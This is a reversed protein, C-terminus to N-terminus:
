GSCMHAFGRRGIQSSELAQDLGQLIVPGLLAADDHLRQIHLHARASEVRRSEDTCDTRLRPIGSVHLGTAPGRVATVTFIRVAQLVVELELYQELRRRIVELFKIEARELREAEVRQHVVNTEDFVVPFRRGETGPPEAPFDPQVAHLDGLEGIELLNASELAMRHRALDSVADLAQRHVQLADVAQEVQDPAAPGVADDGVAVDIMLVLDLLRGVVELEGVGVRQEAPEVGALSLALLQDLVAQRQGGVLLDHLRRVREVQEIRAM